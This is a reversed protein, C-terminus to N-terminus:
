DYIDKIKNFHIVVLDPNSYDNFSVADDIIIINDYTILESNAVNVYDERYNYMSINAIINEIKKGYDADYAWYYNDDDSNRGLSYITPCFGRKNELLYFRNDYERGLIPEDTSAYGVLHVIQAYIGDRPTDFWVGSDVSGDDLIFGTAGHGSYNNQEPSVIGSFEFYGTELLSQSIPVIPNINETKCADNVTELWESLTCELKPSPNKRLIFQEIKKIDIEEYGMIKLSNDINQSLANIVEELEEKGKSQFYEEFTKENNILIIEDIKTDADRKDQSYIRNLFEEWRNEAIIYHPCDKGWVHHHMVIEINPYQPLIIEQVYKITNSYTQERAATTLEESFIGNEDLKGDVCMEIGISNSNNINKEGTPNGTHWLTTDFPAVQIATTNDIYVHTGLVSEPNDSKARRMHADADAGVNENATEHIVLYKIEDSELMEKIQMVEYKNKPIYDVRLTFSLISVSTLLLLVICVLMIKIKKNMFDRKRLPM